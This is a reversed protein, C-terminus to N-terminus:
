KLETVPFEESWLHYVHNYLEESVSVKYPTPNIDRLHDERTSRLQDLVYERSESLPVNPYARKGDWVCHHLPIVKSPNVYVRKIPDFPHHCLIRKIPQPPQDGVRIMLDLLGYGDEGLLRYAEKKGPITMKDLEQSVKIRPLGRAEVLKYVCGLAPQDDCTVLHTGIGFIDVEHGQHRLSTLVDRNIENSALIVCKSLDADARDGIETLMRRTRKSLYSLDGSDLRVGLPRYGLKLLGLAVCIFNPVGSKLTDYTDVLALFEKPFAQAYAIFAALEGENTYNFGLEARIDLVMKVFDHREGGAGSLTRDRLDKIDTFSMVYSHAHTGRIPVGFLYGALVNSTADFGGMYSYRSASVGGDPGQARRLGFEVLGKNFGVGLRYKAANTTMLSPYNTLTLTATELLQGVAIPGQVRMLPVRPFSITGEKMAYIKMRSCDVSKLWDFFPKECRPMQDKLYAIHNDNFYFNEFLKLKEGLGAYIAFEGQFPNKRFFLDFVAEEEHMGAKWYAYAMTIEYFDTLMPNVLNNAPEM